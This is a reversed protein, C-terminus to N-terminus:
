DPDPYEFVPYLKELKIRADETTFRWRVKAETRNRHDEWSGVESRLVAVEDIRRDLCQGSLVSLETEAMNLWSGHKPTYHVELREWLRRAEAAPFAEYLAGGTHTNLNDCVLVLREAEPYHEELLQQVCWAWEVKRRQPTIWVRRWGRLPEFFMFLDAVGKREYEYDVRRPQGPAVDVPLRTERILQKSTEDMCVVPRLPDYPRKYVHLVDEMKWVFEANAKPPICWMKVLWPKLENKKLTRRITEHSVKDVHGSEVLRDALLRLTWRCRGAPPSGCALAILQAEQEGDLMRPRRPVPRRVLAGELGGEVFSRRVRHVTIAGLDLAHSIQEDSWAPGLSSCDAKLLIRARTLKRAATKGKAVLSELQGREEVSLRVVFKKNM